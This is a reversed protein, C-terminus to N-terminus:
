KRLEASEWNTVVTVPQVKTAAENGASSMVLFRQGDRSPEVGYPLLSRSGSLVVVPFLPHPAGPEFTPNLRIPTAMLKLDASIYFLETGDHRWRPQQGGSKSIQWKAGNAPVAQVYVQYDGSENSQYAMWKGDPSFRANLEDFRTQLYSVPKRDGELPLLWLDDRTTGGNSEYVIWKGDPSWDDPGGLTTRILFEENGVGSAPKQYIDFYYTGAPQFVFALRSGDPSWVPSYNLGPRFTFRSTRDQTMAQMWIEQRPGNDVTMAVTEQDPSLAFEKPPGISRVEAKGATRMLEGARDRWLLDRNSYRYGSRYVLTGNVSATFAGFGIAHSLPVQEAVPVLDGTAKLSRADFPLAMLTDDRRFLIRGSGGRTTPLVYLGNTKDPAVREAKEGNLSGIYLGAVEPDDSARLYLFHVGDPLFSAFRHGSVFGHETVTTVPTPVGGASSVRFIGTTPDPTFLIVGQQNWTGGRSNPAECLVQPLGGGVPIKKLSGQAFFGLYAGDPSWFPYTAGDTGELARSELASLNHIWIRNPEGNSSTVFALLQGDPSLALLEAQAIGPPPIQFRLSKSFAPTERFHVFALGLAVLASLVFGFAAVRGIASTGAVPATLPAGPQMADDLEIRADACDHLRRKPDRELCRHLLRVINAPVVPPLAQWDPSQEIIAALTDTITERGFATRGALMEYLICGFAWIDTQKDVARGRAQEPSMYAATGLLLDDRPINTVLTASSSLDMAAGSTAKALGFDLVKVVGSSAVVINAPKLDRHVIGKEHAAALADAIMGAIALAEAVQLPGRAIRNSLTEGEVLELVLARVEGATEFGYIAGIYPHNLAALVRAEREFRAVREANSTFASPLVKLAVDRGLQMDRARYVEGMGGAGLLSQIEYGGIRRGTMSTRAAAAIKAGAVALAPQSLFHPTALDEALLSEVEHQLAADGACERALFAAREGVPLAGAAHYLREIAPWREPPVAAM